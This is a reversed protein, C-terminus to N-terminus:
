EPRFMFPYRLVTADKGTYSPFSIKGIAEIVCAELASDDLTSEVQEAHAVNGRADITFEVVLRGSLDEDRALAEQYCAKVGEDHKLRTRFASAGVSEAMIAAAPAPAPPSFVFPFRITT